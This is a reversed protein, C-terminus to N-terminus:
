SAIADPAKIIQLSINTARDHSYMIPCISRFGIWSTGTIYCNFEVSLSNMGKKLKRWSYM